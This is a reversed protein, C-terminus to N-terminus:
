FEDETDTESDEDSDYVASWDKVEEDSSDELLEKMHPDTVNSKADAATTDDEVKQFVTEATDDVDM